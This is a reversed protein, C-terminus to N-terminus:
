GRRRTRAADAPRALGPRLLGVILRAYERDLPRPGGSLLRFWFAGLIIDMTGEIDLDSRLQGAAVGRELIGGFFAHRRSVFAQYFTARFAPDFQAEAIFSRVSRSVQDDAMIEFLRALAAELDAFADGTLASPPPAMQVARDAYAELILEAKSSWWRYISQKGVKADMSIRDISIDRYDETRLLQLAADLIARRTTQSRPRGPKRRETSADDDTM